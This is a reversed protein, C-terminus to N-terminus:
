VVRFEVTKKIGNGKIDLEDLDISPEGSGHKFINEQSDSRHTKSAGGHFEVVHEGRGAAFDDKQTSTFRGPQSGQGPRSHSSPYKQDTFILKSALLDIYLVVPFLCFMAYAFRDLQSALNEASQGPTKLSHTIARFVGQVALLAVRGETSRSLYRFFGVNLAIQVSSARADTFVVILFYAGICELIAMLGFYAIHLYNIIHQISEDHSMISRVRFVSIVVRTIIIGSIGAWFLSSFVRWRVGRLVRKLIIYSYFLLGTEQMVWFIDAFVSSVARNIDPHTGYNSYFCLGDAIAGAASSLIPVAALPTFSTISCVLLGFLVNAMCITSLISWSLEFFVANADAATTAM